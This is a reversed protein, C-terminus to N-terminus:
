ASERERAASREALVFGVVALLAILLVSVLMGIRDSAEDYHSLERWFSSTVVVLFAVLWVGRRRSEIAYAVGGGAIVASALFGWRWSIHALMVEGLPDDSSKVRGISLSSLMAGGISFVLLLGLLVLVNRVVRRPKMGFLWM